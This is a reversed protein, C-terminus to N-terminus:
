TKFLLFREERDRDRKAQQEKKGSWRLIFNTSLYFGKFDFGNFGKRMLHTLLMYWIVGNCKMYFWINQNAM